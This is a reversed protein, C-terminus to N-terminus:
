RRRALLVIAGCWSVASVLLGWAFSPRGYRLEILRDAPGVDVSVLGNRATVKRGDVARWHDYANQNVVLVAPGNVKVAFRLVNPSWYATTVTGESGELHAEGRYAPDGMPIAIGRPVSATEYCDIVGLNMELAPYHGSWSGYVEDGVKTFGHENYSPLDSVQRFEAFEITELPPIPFAARYIPRTVAFADVSVLAVVACAVALGARDGLRLSVRRRVWQLGCGAFVCLILFWILRFREPYRFSDYVPLKSLLAFLSVPARDGLSLWVFVPVCAALKWLSRGSAVLGILSLAAVLPGVYMGVDDFDSSIGRFLRDASEEHSSTGFKTRAVELRQDRDFLGYTMSEVSFGYATDSRRPYARMFEISPFFKAAGLALMVAVIAALAWLPKTVNSRRISLLSLLGIFSLTVAVAYAGGGFYMLALGGGALVAARWAGRAREYALVVWPLYATSMAWTMGATTPLAYFPGLFGVIPGIWASVRDLGYSRGLAYLGLMGVVAFLIMEIKLGAVTGFLLIM